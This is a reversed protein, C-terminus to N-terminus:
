VDRFSTSAMSVKNRGSTKSMYAAEDARILLAEPEEGAGLEAVGISVTRGVESGDGDFGIQGEHKKDSRGVGVFRKSFGEAREDLM